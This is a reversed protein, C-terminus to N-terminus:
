LNSLPHNKGIRALLELNEALYGTGMVACEVPNRAVMVQIGTEAAIRQDLGPLQAVGGTLHIGTRMVDAGLEPPTRELVWKIALLIERLPAQLAEHVQDSDVEMVQPLGTILDRGRVLAAQAEAQPQANGLDIKIDEAMRSGILLNSEKKAFAIIAEDMANGGVRISKNVVPYGMSIVAVETTGGGIDVVMSGQPESVPLGCGFASAIATDVVHALTCGAQQVAEEVARREMATIESPVAMVVRPRGIRNTPLARKLFSRLMIVTMDFDAVVGDRIPNVAAFGAPIRGMMARADEGAAMVERKQGTQVVVLSPERLTIGRGPIYFLVSNTGLDIGIKPSFFAM